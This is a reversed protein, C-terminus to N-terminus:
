FSLEEYDMNAQYRKQANRGYYYQEDFVHDYDIYYNRSAVIILLLNSNM